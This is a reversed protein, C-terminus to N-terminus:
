KFEEIIKNELPKRIVIEQWIMFLNGTVIYLSIVAPFFFSTAFILVPIFYRVQMEM